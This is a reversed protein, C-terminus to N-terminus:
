RTPLAKCFEPHTGSLGIHSPTIDVVKLSVTLMPMIKHIILMLTAIVAFGGIALLPIGVDNLWDRRPSKPLDHIWLQGFYLSCCTVVATLVLLVTLIFGVWRRFAIESSVPLRVVAKPVDSWYFMVLAIATDLPQSGSSFTSKRHHFLCTARGTAPEGTLVCVEPLPQGRPIWAVNDATQPTETQIDPM